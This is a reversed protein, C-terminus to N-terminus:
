YRDLIVWLGVFPEDYKNILRHPITCDFTIADGRRLTYKSFGLEVELTGELVRGFERGKHTYATEGSSAGPAYHLEIFEIAEENTPTLRQWQIGGVINITERELPTVVPGGGGANGPGSRQPSLGNQDPGTDTAARRVALMALADVTSGVETSASENKSEHDFFYEMPLDLAGAIGLLSSVSPSTIGREIQSIHSATLNVKEALQTLTLDVSKRAQRIKLGLHTLPDTMQATEREGDM